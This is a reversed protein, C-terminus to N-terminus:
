TEALRDLLNRYENAFGDVATELDYFSASDHGHIEDLRLARRAKKVDTVSVEFNPGPYGLKFAVEGDPTKRFVKMYNKKPSEFTCGLETLNEKFEKFHISRDGLVLARTHATLWRQIGAVESDPSRTSSPRTMFSHSAVQTTLDYLNDENAEILLHKNRQLFVLLSVIATRKNGNEFGHSLTLGYFLTAAAGIVSPYKLNGGFGAHQREIASELENPRIPRNAGFDKGGYESTALRGRIVTIDDLDLYRIDM